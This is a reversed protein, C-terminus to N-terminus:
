TKGLGMEDGLLVRGGRNIITAVGERQFPLLSDHLSQPLKKAIAERAAELTLAAKGGSQYKFRGEQIVRTIFTPLPRISTRLNLSRIDNMTKSLASLPLTWCKSEKDFM